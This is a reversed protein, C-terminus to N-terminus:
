SYWQSPRSIPCSRLSFNLFSNPSKQELCSKIGVFNSGQCFGDKTGNTVNKRKFYAEALIAYWAEDVWEKDVHAWFAKRRLAERQM